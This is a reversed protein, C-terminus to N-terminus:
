RDCVSTLMPDDAALPYWDNSLAQGPEPFRLDRSFDARAGRGCDIVQPIRRASRRREFLYLEALVLNPHQSNVSADGVNLAMFRVTQPAFYSWPRWLAQEEVTRVVAVGDPLLSQQHAFWTYETYVQFGLMGLGACAPVLWRPLRRASLARLLLAVGAAGLGAFVTAVFEWFM